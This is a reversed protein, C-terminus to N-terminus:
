LSQGYRSRRLFTSRPKVLLSISGDEMRTWGMRVADEVLLRFLYKTRACIKAVAAM